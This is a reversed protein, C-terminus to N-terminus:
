YSDSIIFDEAVDRLHCPSLNLRGCLECLRLAREYSATIDSVKAAVCSNEDIAAIGYSVTECGETKLKEQFVSYKTM